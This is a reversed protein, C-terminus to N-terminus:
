QIIHTPRSPPLLGALRVTGEALTGALTTLRWGAPQDPVLCVEVGYIRDVHGPLPLDDARTAEMLGALHFMVLAGCELWAGVERNDRLAAVVASAAADGEGWGPCEVDFGLASGWEHETFAHPGHPTLSDRCRATRFRV